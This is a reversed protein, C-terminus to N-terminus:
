AATGQTSREEPTEEMKDEDHMVHATDCNRQAIQRVHILELTTKGFRLWQV